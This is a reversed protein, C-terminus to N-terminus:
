LVFFYYYFLFICTIFFLVILFTSTLIVYLDDTRKSLIQNQFLKTTTINITTLEKTTKKISQTTTISTTRKVFIENIKMIFVVKSFCSKEKIAMNVQQNFTLPPNKISIIDFSNDKKGIFDIISENLYKFEYFFNDPNFNQIFNIKLITEQQMINKRMLIIRHKFFDSIKKCISQPLINLYISVKKSRPPMGNDTAVATLIYKGPYIKQNISLIGTKKHINFFPTNPILSYTINAWVSSDQDIAQVKAFSKEKNIFEEKLTFSYSTNIFDPEFKNIESSHSCDDGYFGLKCHCVNKSVCFGNGFCNQLKDCFTEDCTTGFWGDNCLCKDFSICKGNDSCFNLNECSFNSCTIGNYGNKCQCNNPSICLGNESCEPNCIPESCNSNTYGIDCVCKQSSQCIGNGSCNNVKECAKTIECYKGEYGNFCQCNNPEICYGQGSCNSHCIAESCSEGIYGEKCSCLDLGVCDGNNTCYNVNKCSFSSCNVGKYDPKCKCINPGVCIGDNLCKQECIAKESCNNGIWGDNCECENSKICIGNLSCDGPCVATKNCNSSEFGKLCKCFGSSCNGYICEGCESLQCYEGFWGEICHCNHDKCIGRNLCNFKCKKSSLASQKAIDDDDSIVVDYVCKDLDKDNLTEQKCIEQAHSIRERPYKQISYVPKHSKNTYSLDLEDNEDFNSHTLSWSNNEMRKSSQNVRWSNVFDDVSFLYQNNPGRFDDSVNNNMVGCLGKTQNFMKQNPTISVSLYQIMMKKSYEVTVTISAGSLFKISVLLISPTNFSLQNSSIDIRVTGNDFVKTVNKDINSIKDGNLKLIPYDTTSNTKISTITLTIQETVKIAIAGIFSTTKYGFFRFQYNLTPSTCGWFEGVGFYDYEKGDLTELHPDGWLSRSIREECADGTWQSFCECYSRCGDMLKCIGNGNCNSSLRCYPQNCYRGTREPTCINNIGCQSICICTGVENRRAITNAPCPPCPECFCIGDKLKSATGDPCTCDCGNSPGPFNKELSSSCCSCQGFQKKYSKIVHKCHCPCICTNLDYNFWGYSPIIEETCLCYNNKVSPNM